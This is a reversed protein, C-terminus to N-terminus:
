GVYVSRDPFIIVMVGSTFLESSNFAIILTSSSLPAIAVFAISTDIFSSSGVMSNLASIVLVSYSELVAM